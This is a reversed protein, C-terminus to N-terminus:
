EPTLYSQVGVPDVSFSELSPEHKRREQQCDQGNRDPREQDEAGANVGSGHMQKEREAGGQEHSPPSEACSAQPM